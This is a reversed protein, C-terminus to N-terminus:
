PIDYVEVLAVWVTNNAGRVIATYKSPSLTTVIVSERNDSPALGTAEVEAQNEKWNDNTEMLVGNQDRLELVPDLLPNNIGAAALSPGIARIVLHRLDTGGLIFGGIMVENDTRVLGRSSINVPNAPASLDTAYLEVLGIGTSGSASSLIFTYNGPALDALLASESPDDPALHLASIEGAQAGQMWDDNSAILTGSGDHLELKPNPLTEAAPVGQEALSPGLGRVVVQESASGTVIFGGIGVNDGTEVKLRTSLNLIAPEAVIPGIKYVKGDTGAGGGLAYVEGADDRGFGKLAFDLGAAPDNIRLEQILGSTLDSYFLRGLGSDPDSFDGFVYKGTLAPVSVGAEVFGGIVASGDAHTYEAVPGTLNPDPSPDPRISGDNPNFLYTGEKRNWGYNKGPEILDVEEINNQGVDAAIMRGTTEDFSFRFPNRLGYAYIEHVATGSNIFPNTAPVRYRGNGSVPDSSGGTLSPDLPDIRLIKGLV